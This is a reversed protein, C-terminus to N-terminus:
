ESNVLLAVRSLYALRREVDQELTAQILKQDTIPQDDQRINLTGNKILDSLHTVLAARDRTGDLVRLLQQGLPDLSLQEHRLNVVSTGEQSQYRALESAKPKEGAKIVYDGQWTHFEVVNATYGQLLDGALADPNGQVAQGKLSPDRQLQDVAKRFLTDLDFARPWHARLVALASKTLPRNARITQKKPTRFTQTKGPSLDLKGEEPIVLSAILLDRVNRPQINRRLKVEQRCLLTQRFRRNRLFDMYQETSVIDKNVKRLTEAAEKPLRSTLMSGFDSEGLYQLGKKRAREAFQYFYVPDNIEELHDHFLYWDTTKKILSLENKLLIGYANNETPVHTALFDLLAKAQQVQQEPKRIQRIHYLMMDRLMERMRWGPYTNYSVYAIGQPTLNESSIALIKDQVENPVWSYVGHTIIYDFKGWSDDVDLISAHEIRINKLGLNQIAKEGMEAQRKSLDVGVFESDPLQYAMPMLNGGNSCGLELVRCGTVPTPSMGFLHGLTALRDPHSQAFPHSEYPVEDYSTQASNDKMESNENKM